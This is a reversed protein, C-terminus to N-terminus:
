VWTDIEFEIQVRVQCKIKCKINSKDSLSFWLLVELSQRCGSM